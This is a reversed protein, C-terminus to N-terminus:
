GIYFFTLACTSYVICRHTLYICILGDTRSDPKQRVFIPPQFLMWDVSFLFSFVELSSVLEECFPLAHEGVGVSCRNCSWAM